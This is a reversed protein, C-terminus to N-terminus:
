YSGGAGWTQILLDQERHTCPDQVSQTCPDQVSHTRPDQMSHTRPNQVHWPHGGAFNFKTLFWGLAM